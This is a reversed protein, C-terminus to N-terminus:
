GWRQRIRAFLAPHRDYQHLVHVPAAVDGAVGGDPCLAPPAALRGLTLVPSGNAFATVPCPLGEHLLLNHVAQDYGAMGKAGRPAFPLLRARMRDLWLRAAPAAGLVTGSCAVLRGGMAALAEPGLHGLTWRRMHPCDALRTSADELFVSLGPPWPFAFPDRPFVVDRVDTLLVRGPPAGRAFLGELHDRFLLFRWANYPVHAAEDPRAFPIVDAGLAAMEEGGRTTPSVFLAVRGAFGTERLSRLFPRVDGAHYGAALGLILDRGAM